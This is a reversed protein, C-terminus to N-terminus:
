PRARLPMTAAARAPDSVSNFPPAYACDLTTLDTFTLDAHSATTPLAVRGAVGDRWLMLARPDPLHATRDSVAIPGAVADFKAVVGGLWYPLGCRSYSPFDDRDYAVNELKPPVRCAESAAIGGAADAGIIVPRKGM